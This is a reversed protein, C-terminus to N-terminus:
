KYQSKRSHKELENNDPRNKIYCRHKSFCESLQERKHGISLVKHRSCQAAYIVEGEKCNGQLRLTFM